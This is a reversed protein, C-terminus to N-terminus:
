VSCSVFSSYIRFKMGGERAHGKQCVCDTRRLEATGLVRLLDHLLRAGRDMDRLELEDREAVPKPCSSLIPIGLIRRPLMARHHQHRQRSQRPQIALSPTPRRLTTKPPHRPTQSNAHKSRIPPSPNFICAICIIYSTLLGSANLSVFIGYAVESGIAIATLCITFVMSVAM